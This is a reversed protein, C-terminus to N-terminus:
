VAAWYLKNRVINATIEQRELLDTLHALVTTQNLHYRVLDTMEIALTACTRQLIEPLTGAQTCADLVAESARAIADLNADCLAEVDTTPDGHGPVITRPLRLATWACERGVNRFTVIM